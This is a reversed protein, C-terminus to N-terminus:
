HKLGCFDALSGRNDKQKDDATIDVYRMATDLSAHVPLAEDSAIPPQVPFIEFLFARCM